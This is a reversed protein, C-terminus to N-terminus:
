FTRLYHRRLRSPNFPAPASAATPALRPAVPAPAPKAPPEEITLHISDIRVSWPETRPAIPGSVDAEAPPLLDREASDPRQSDAASSFARRRSAKATDPDRRSSDAEIISSGISKTTPTRTAPTRLKPSEFDTAPTRTDRVWAVVERVIERADPAPRTIEDGAPSEAASADTAGTPKQQEEETRLTTPSISVFPIADEAVFAPPASPEAPHPPPKRDASLAGDDEPEDQVAPAMTEHNEAVIPDAGSPPVERLTEEEIVDSPSPIIESAPVSSSSTPDSVRIASQRMLRTLYGNM